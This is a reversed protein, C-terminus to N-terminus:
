IPPNGAFQAAGEVPSVWHRRRVSFLEMAPRFWENQDIGGAKIFMIDPTVDPKTTLPSGCRACSGRLVTMGSSGVDVFEAVEGAIVVASRHVFIITSFASGSQPRCRDCHCLGMALPAEAINYRVAGCMCGGTIPLVLDSTTETM